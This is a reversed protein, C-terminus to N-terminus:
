TYSGFFLVVPRKDRYSALTVRKTDDHLMNLTFDPAPEGVKLADDGRGRRAARGGRRADPAQGRAPERRALRDAGRPRGDRRATLYARMMPEVDYTRAHMRDIIDQRAADGAINRYWAEAIIKMGAASPHMGDEAFADPYAAKTPTWVDPGQFIFDHGRALLAALALRENGVEPEVPKKYIHMGFHVREIGHARLRRALKEMADAGIKIGERDDASAIPGRRTRTFQLSQQCLAITPTPADGRLRADPGFYDTLMAGITKKYDDTGTDAIWTEVPSGGVVANLVHYVRHGGAHEDLMDQLMDPWAFSTSYGVVLFSKERGDLLTEATAAGVPGFGVILVGFLHRFRRDLVNM